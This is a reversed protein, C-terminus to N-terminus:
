IDTEKEKDQTADSFLKDITNFLDEAIAEPERDDEQTPEIDEQEVPREPM